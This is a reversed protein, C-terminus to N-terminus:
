LIKKHGLIDEIDEFCLLSNNLMAANGKNLQLNRVGTKRNSQPHERQHCPDPHLLMVCFIWMNVWFFLGVEMWAEEVVKVFALSICFLHSHALMALFNWLFHKSYVLCYSTHHSPGFHLLFPIERVGERLWVRRLGTEFHDRGRPGPAVVPTVFRRVTCTGPACSIPRQHNSNHLVPHLSRSAAKLHM